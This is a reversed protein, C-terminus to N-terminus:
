GGYVYELKEVLHRCEAPLENLLGNEKFSDGYFGSEEAIVEEIAENCSACTEKQALTFKYVEGRLYQDYTEVEGLLYEKRKGWDSGFKDFREKTTYIWGVQGSDWPCSFGTTNITLGSHNYLYLPLMFTDPDRSVLEQLELVIEGGPRESGYQWEQHLANAHHKDKERVLGLFCHITNKFSHKDGLHYRGHWCVMRGLNDDDRPNPPDTMRQVTLAFEGDSAQYMTKNM